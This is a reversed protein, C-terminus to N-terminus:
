VLEHALETSYRVAYIYPLNILDHLRNNLFRALKYSPAGINNIVPRIPNNPKQTKILAELKPATSKM